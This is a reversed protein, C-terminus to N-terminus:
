PNHSFRKKRIDRLEGAIRTLYGAATELDDEPHKTMTAFRIAVERLFRSSPEQALLRWLSKVQKASRTTLDLSPRPGANRPEDPEAQNVSEEALVRQIAEDILAHQESRPAAVIGRLLGEPLRYQSARYLSEDDLTLLQLHKGLYTREYSIVKQVAEWTGNPLKKIALVRRFYENEPEGEEPAIGLHLLILSAIAKALDVASIDERQTNETIQRVRSIERREIVKLRPEETPGPTESNGAQIYALALSWMRREGTELLFRNGAPTQTWKGTASSIQEDALISEGLALLSAVERAIGADQEAAELLMRTAQYITIQGSFYLEKIDPPLIVRPQYFDPLIQSIPISSVRAQRGMDALPGGGGLMADTQGPGGRQLAQSKDVPRQPM